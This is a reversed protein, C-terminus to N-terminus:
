RAPRLGKERAYAEVEARNKLHLKEIIRRMHFKVTRESLSLKGAIEKYLWGEAVLVLVEAERPTLASVAEDRSGPGFEAFVKKALEASLSTGGELITALESVLEKAGLGKLLYGSAGSKMAELLDGERDSMTLIAIKIEPLEAHILRTAMLGDCGPMRIDMLVLDPKFVRTKELAEWGNKATAVVTFGKDILVNELGDLFLAHDDVLLIRRSADGSADPASAPRAPEKAPCPMSVIVRTGSGPASEVRVDGGVQSARERMIGLGFHSGVPLASPDFGVGDDGVSIRREEGTKMFSIVARKARAHKRVNVLAEQLIRFLQMQAPVTFDADDMASPNEVAVRIGFQSSYREIHRELTKFFGDKFILSTRIEYIFERIETNAEEIIQSLNALGADAEALGGGRIKDRIAQVRINLYGLVQGLSDHLERALRDREELTAAMRQQREVERRARKVESVDHLLVLRGMARRRHGEIPWWRVEYSGERGRGRLELELHGEPASPALREGTETGFLEAMTKGVLPPAAGAIEAAAPNFEAVRGWRDLVLMGDGMSQIVLSRAAPLRDFLEFRFLGWTYLLGCASFLLPAVDHNWPSLGLTFGVNAAYPLIVGIVLALTQWRYHSWMRFMARIHILCAALVLPYTYASYVWFWPGYTKGIVPFPGSTDLHVNRRMLGHWGNTWALLVTLIPVVLLLALRRRTLWRGQGTYYLAMVLWGVAITNYCIYQVNAWFLKTPLDLGMMELANSTSWLASAFMLVIFPVAGPVSRRPWAFAVTCLSLLASAFLLAAYPLFQYPM